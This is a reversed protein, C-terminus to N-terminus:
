KCARASVRMCVRKTARAFKRARSCAVDMCARFPAIERMFVSACKDQEVNVPYCIIRIYIFRCIFIYMCVYM